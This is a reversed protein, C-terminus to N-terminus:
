AMVAPDAPDAWRDNPILPYWGPRAPDRDYPYGRLERYLEAYQAVRQRDLRM